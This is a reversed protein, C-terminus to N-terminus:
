KVFEMIRKLGKEIDKESLAYSLRICYPKGFPTGPVVAVKEKELLDEAFDFSDKYGMNKIIDEFDPFVYFAGQPEVLKIGDIEKLLDLMLKRRKKYKEVMPFVEEYYKTLAAIAAYQSISTPNSTSHSQINNIVKIAEKPGAIYGIRWGTMAFTKSVANVTFTKEYIKPSLSAISTHKLGDYVLFEYVEDSIIWIDKDELYKTLVELEKRTYVAGSPNSPSNFLLAKTRSTIYKDLIEPTIKYNTELSTEVFVPKAGAIKVQEPYTLWYPVPILVEDGEECITLFINFLSHKAGCNVSINDIDYKLNNDREFKEVIAKKLEPLGSAPTYKTEGSKIAEIAANKIPEPTDFDPQGTGFGVVDIGQKKMAKAKASIALTASAKVNLVRGNLGPM